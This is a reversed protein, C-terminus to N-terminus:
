GASELEMREHRAAESLPLAARSVPAEGTLTGRASARGRSGCGPAPRPAGRDWGECAGWGLACPRRTRTGVGGERAEGAAAGACARPRACPPSPRRGRAGSVSGTLGPSGAQLQPRRLRSSPGAAGCGRASSHTGAGGLRGPAPLHAAAGRRRGLYLAGGKRIGPEGAAGPKPVQPSQQPAKLKYQTENEVPHPPVRPLAM